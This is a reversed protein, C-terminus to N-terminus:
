SFDFGAEISVDQFKSSLSSVWNSRTPVLDATGLPPLKESM